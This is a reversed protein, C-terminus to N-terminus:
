IRGKEDAIGSKQRYYTCIADRWEAASEVQLDFRELVREFRKRDIKDKLSCWASRM